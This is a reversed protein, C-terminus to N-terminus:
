NRCAIMFLYISWCVIAISFGNRFLLWLFKYIKIYSQLDFSNFM